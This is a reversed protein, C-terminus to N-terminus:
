VKVGESGINENETRTIHEVEIKGSILKPLLLMCTEKLNNNKCSLVKINNLFPRVLETFKDILEKNPLLIEKNKVKAVSINQQAAGQAILNFNKREELLKYFLFENTLYRENINFGVTAQNFSSPKTLIGLRGVTPSAYIAMIITDKDFIKASSNNFGKESIKEESEFLFKDVLEKTKFWNITGNEWYEHMKRLPTGGSAIKECLSDLKRIKWGEPIKGLESDVFNCNDYGPFRFKVFWEKYIINVIDELIEIRRNNNEILDDYATLIYAINEQIKLPPVLLELQKISNISARQRGSAGSMSKEATKRVIDSLSLYYIFGPDSIDKKNRFVFFETSGFGVLGNEGRFQSIKGNELCPTIRAFLTDGAQFKAGGGKYIRKVDSSVYRYEPLVTGMEVFHYEEGKSLTIKPNIEVLENFPMKKWKSM